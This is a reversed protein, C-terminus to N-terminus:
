HKEPPRGDSGRPGVLRDIASKFVDGGGLVNLNEFISKCEVIAIAGSCLKILPLWGELLWTEAAFAVLTATLYVTSKVLTRRLKHSEIPEGLKRAKLLGTILDVVVLFGTAGLVPKIPALIALLVGLAAKLYTM